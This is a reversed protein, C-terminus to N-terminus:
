LKRRNNKGLGLIKGLRQKPTLLKSKPRSAAVVASVASAAALYV